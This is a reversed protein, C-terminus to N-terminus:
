ALLRMIDVSDTARAMRWASRGSPIFTMLELPAAAECLTGCRCIWRTGRQLLSPKPTMQGALSGIASSTLSASVTLAWGKMLFSDTALRAIVAQLFELHKLSAESYTNGQDNDDQKNV